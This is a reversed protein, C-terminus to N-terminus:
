CALCPFPQQPAHEQSAHQEMAAETHSADCSARVLAIYSNHRTKAANCTEDENRGRAMGSRRRSISTRRGGSSGM